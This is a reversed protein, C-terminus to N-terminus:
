VAVSGLVLHNMAPTFAEHLVGRAAGAAGGADPRALRIAPGPFGLDLTQAHRQVVSRFTTGLADAIPGGVMVVEPDLLQIAPLLAAALHTAALEVCGAVRDDTGALRAIEELTPLEPTSLVPTGRTAAVARRLAQESLVAALCGRRGCDCQEGSREVPTHAISGGRGRAGTCLQGRSVIACDIDPGLHVYVFDRASLGGCWQEGRAGAVVASTWFTPMCLRQELDDRIGAQALASTLGIGLVATVRVEADDILDPVAEALLEVVCNSSTTDGVLQRDAVVHGSMDCLVIRCGSPAVEIGIVNAGNPRLVLQRARGTATAPPTDLLTGVEILRRSINEITQFTLGTLRSLDGRTLAGRTRIMHLVLLQNHDRVCLLNSGTVQAGAPTGPFRSGATTVALAGTPRALSRGKQAATAGRATAM